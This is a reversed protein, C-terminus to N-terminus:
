GSIATIRPAGDASICHDTILSNNVVGHTEPTCINGNSRDNEGDGGLLQYEVSAPFDQNPAMSEASQSHFM